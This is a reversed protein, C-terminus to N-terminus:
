SLGLRRLTSITDQGFKSATRAPRRAQPDMVAFSGSETNVQWHADPGEVVEHPEIVSTAVAAAVDRMSVDILQARDSMLAAMTAVAAHVGALPDALADGCPLLTKGDSVALGVAAAVDDGFGVRNAWPGTRGYSTISTWITGAAVAENADIGLQQMARPRSAELVVDAGDVLRRLTDLGAQSTFDITVAAHGEHLLDFFEPPGSRAGDPRSTSEVKIVEAGALGLLHACLPGAWLSTLDIVLPVGHERKRRGGAQTLLMTGARGARGRRHNAQDDAKANSRPIVAAAIGLLQARAVSEEATRRRVWSEVCDWPSADSQDGEILAPILALDDERPLSIGLWGDRTPLARFAGGCSWPARRTFGSMAAREGLLGIGPLVPTQETSVRSLTSFVALAGRVAGAPNGESAIPPGTKHGTLSMAGSAAWDALPSPANDLNCTAEARDGPEAGLEALLRRAHSATYGGGTVAIHRGELPRSSEESM